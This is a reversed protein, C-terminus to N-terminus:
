RWESTHRLPRLQAGGGGEVEDVVGRQAASQGANAGMAGVRWRPESATSSAGLQPVGAHARRCPLATLNVESVIKALPLAVCYKGLVAHTSAVVVLDGIRDLPLEYEAAAVEKTMVREVCVHGDLLAVAASADDKDDLYVTAFSGLAGHHVVYPDTIPLITRCGVFLLLLAAVGVM